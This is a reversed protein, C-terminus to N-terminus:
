NQIQHPAQNIVPGRESIQHPAQNIVPGRESIQHPAQNIVPGRETMGRVTLPMSMCPAYLACVM